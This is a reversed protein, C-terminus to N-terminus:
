KAIKMAGTYQMKVTNGIDTFNRDEFILFKHEYSLKKLGDITHKGFETIIDM